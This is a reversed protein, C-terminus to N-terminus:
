IIAVDEKIVKLNRELGRLNDELHRMNRDLNRQIGEEDLIITGKLDDGDSGFHHWKM